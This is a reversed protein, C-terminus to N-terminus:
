TAIKSKVCSHACRFTLHQRQPPWPNPQLIFSHAPVCQVSRAETVGLGGDGEAYFYSKKKKRKSEWQRNDKGFRLTLDLANPSNEAKARTRPSTLLWSNEASKVSRVSRSRPAHGPGPAEAVRQQCARRHSKGLQELSPGDLSVTAHRGDGGAGPTASPLNATSDSGEPGRAALEREQVLQEKEKTWRYLPQCDSGALPVM